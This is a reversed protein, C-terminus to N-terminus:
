ELTCWSRATRCFAIWTTDRKGRATHHYPRAPQYATPSLVPRSKRPFLPTHQKPSRDNTPGSAAAVAARTVAKAPPRPPRRRPAGQPMVKSAWPHGKTIAWRRAWASASAARAVTAPWPATATVPYVGRLHALAVGQPCADITGDLGTCAHEM